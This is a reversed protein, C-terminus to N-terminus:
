VHNGKLASLPALCDGYDVNQYLGLAFINGNEGVRPKLKECYTYFFYTAHPFFYNVTSLQGNVARSARTERM